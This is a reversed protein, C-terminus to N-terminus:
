TFHSVTKTINMTNKEDSYPVFLSIVKKMMKMFFTFIIKESSDHGLIEDRKM